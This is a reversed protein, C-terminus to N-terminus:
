LRNAARVKGSRMWRGLGVAGASSCCRTEQSCRRMMPPACVRGLMPRRSVVRVTAGGSNVAVADSVAEQTEVTPLFMQYAANLGSEQGTYNGLVNETYPFNDVENEAGAEGAAPDSTVETPPEGFFIPEELEGDLLPPSSDIEGSQEPAVDQAMVAPVPAVSLSSFSAVSAILTMVLMKSVLSKNNLSARFLKRAFFLTTRLDTEGQIRLYQWFSYM